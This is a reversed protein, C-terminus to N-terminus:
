DITQVTGSVANVFFENTSRDTKVVIHWAPVFILPDSGADGVLNVYGLEVVKIQPHEAGPLDNQAALNNIATEASIVGVHNTQGFNFYSQQYGIIQNNIVTFNLMQNSSRRSIFVPRNNFLQVFNATGAKKDSQWFVYDQGQYVMNLLNKQFDTKEPAGAVPSSFVSHLQLGSNEVSIKQSVTGRGPDMLAAVNKKENLFDVRNGRLFTVDQPTPPLVTQMKVSGNQLVNTVQGDTLGGISEAQQRQYLEFVLFADLLLFCIIFISKTKSWNM